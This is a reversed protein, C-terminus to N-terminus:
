GEKDEIANILWDLSKQREMDLLKNENNYDIDASYDQKKFDDLSTVIRNSLGLKNLLDTVRSGTKKHPVVWLKKQFLISFVTAHFSSTVVFEANKILNVFELPGEIYASRLANKYKNINEFYIVKYKSANSLNNVINTVENNDSKTYVLIYKGKEKKEKIEQPIEHEWETSTLLMTPDLVTTVKKNPLIDNIIKEGTEERVSISNIKSLKEKYNSVQNSPIQANGFSAAYSIRNINKNGFNLTYIDDLTKTIDTNWIQDSGTILISYDKCNAKIEKETMEVSLIMKESMFKLFNNYRKRRKKYFVVYKCINKLSKIPNSSIKLTLKYDKIINQNIYNIITVDYDCDKLKKQLAYAQLMAGYNHANHFTITGIKKM